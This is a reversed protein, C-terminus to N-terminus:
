SVRFLVVFPEVAALLAPVSRAELPPVRTIWPRAMLLTPPVMVARSLEVTRNVLVMWPPVNALAPLPTTWHNPWISPEAFVTVFAPVSWDRPPVIKPVRFLVPATVKPGLRPRVGAPSVVRVPEPVRVRALPLKMAPPEDTEVARVSVLALVM